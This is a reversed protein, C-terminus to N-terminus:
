APTKGPAPRRAHALAVGALAIWGALSAYYALRLYWPGPYSLEVVSDGARVPLRVLGDASVRPRVPEGNIKAAYGPLFMRPTELWTDGTSHVRLRLPTWSEVQLPLDAPSYERLTATAFSDVTPPIEGAFVFQLRVREAEAGDTWLTITRTQTAGTGFTRSPGSLTTGFGSDPLWYMRSTHPGLVRLVGGFEPHTFGFTLGYRRGPELTFEPKLEMTPSLPNTRGDLLLATVTRGSTMRELATRNSEIETTGDASLLRLEMAPDIFGHSFYTPIRNFPNFSYRTLIRNQPLLQYATQAPPLANRAARATFKVSELASWVLGAVLAPILLWARGPRGAIWPALSVCGFFAVLGALLVYFRQMPWMYTINCVAQPMLGWLKAHLGPVPVIFALILGIAALLAWGERRRPRCALSVLGAALVAWLSWGLQYNGLQTMDPNVPRLTAAFATRLNDIIVPRSAPNGPMGLTGVSVFVYLSLVALVATTIGWQRWLAPHRAERFLRVVQVVAAIATGWLAIPAHCFWLGALAVAILIMAKLDGITLSRWAGYLLVPVFPLTATSMYLDGAYVLALLGPCATVLLSLTLAFWPTRPEIARLCRFCALAGGLYSAALTVNVIGRLTLERFTVLDVLGALHQLGPALRIPSVAGNFAFESQGVFVPFVGARWQTVFDAVMIGYWYSDGAGLSANALLPYHLGLTAAALLAWQLPGLPDLGAAARRRHWLHFLVQVPVLLLLMRPLLGPLQWAPPPLTALGAAVAGGLIIKVPLLAAARPLRHAYSCTVLNGAVVLGSVAALQAVTFKLDLAYGCTLMTAAAALLADAAALSWTFRGARDSETARTFAGPHRELAHLALRLPFLAAMIELYTRPNVVGQLGGRVLWYAGVAALTGLLLRPWRLSQADTAPRLYAGFVLPGALALGAMAAVAKVTFVRDLAWHGAAYFGAVLLVVETLFLGAAFGGLRGCPIRWGLAFPLPATPLQM